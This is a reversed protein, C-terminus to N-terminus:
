NEATDSISEGCRGPGGRRRQNGTEKDLKKKEKLSYRERLRLTINQLPVERKRKRYEGKKGLNTDSERGSRVFHGGEKFGWSRKHSKKKLGQL